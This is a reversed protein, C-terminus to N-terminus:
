HRIRILATAAVSVALALILVLARPSLLFTLLIGASFSLATLAILQIRTRKFSM